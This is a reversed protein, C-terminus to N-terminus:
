VSMYKDVIFALYIITSIDYKNQWLVQVLEVMSSYITSM